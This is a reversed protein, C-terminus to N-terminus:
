IIELETTSISELTLVQNSTLTLTDGSAVTLLKGIISFNPNNITVLKGSVKSSCRIKFRRGKVLTTPLTLTGNGEFVLDANEVTNSITATVSDSFYVPIGLTQAASEARAADTAADTAAQQAEEVSIDLGDLYNNLSTISGGNPTHSINSTLAFANSTVENILVGNIRFLIKPESPITTDVFVGSTDKQIFPIPSGKGVGGDHNHGTVNSFESELNVLVTSMDRSDHTFNVSDLVPTSLIDSYDLPAGGGESGDHVHGLTSSFTQELQDFEANFLPADIVDGNTFSSQRTYKFPM